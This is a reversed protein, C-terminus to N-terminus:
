LIEGKMCLLNGDIQIFQRGARSLKQQEGGTKRDVEQNQILQTYYGGQKLLEQHSGREVIEGQHMVLILDANRITSLRHAIIIQACSLRRINQEIIQETLVDLSSTAEDLLLLVPERVLARALALRQRQGGSLANGGESVFTEYQMPMKMIDDHLAAVKAAKIVKEMNMTPDSLTINERISGSFISAEQTVVGFQARVAQYNLSRLPIGDYLIEGKTPICLGLILSGLTSKGSGTRGVIAVKQGPRISLDISRLIMPAQADYQFSVKNLRISGTLQPPDVVKQWNQEPDADIVDAIRELHSQILQLQTGSSVLSSLPTLLAGALANLALMTGVQMSGAIVQMTGLWLLTLPACINLASLVITILASLYNRRVSINMQEFFLNSWQELARHEAGVSKLTKIGVLMETLYGQSKGDATLERRTLEGFYPKISLLLVSQLIGIILVVVTFSLSQSFLICLYILVFSGDLITSILQNSITDRIIMNSSVRTLLDGSSRQLFFSHPLSLLHEFFNLMMNTDIRAQVYVLISARLLSTIFQALVLLLMGLGFLWLANSMKAPILQDIAVATLLPVLLGLLQLLLSAGLIQLLATPTQKVYRLLYTQVNFAKETGERHFQAGPELLIIVGTFGLDFEEITMRRRGATPDVVDVFRPSWREVILFHNFEWHVIAPLAVNRFDNEQLSLARVRMGYARAAKVISLASLGDRGMGCRERVESISTKRGYYCLLMALCAAGCEVMSVQLLLPVRRQRLSQTSISFIHQLMQQSKQQWSTTYSISHSRKEKELPVSLAQLQLTEIRAIHERHAILEAVEPSSFQEVVQTERLSSPPKLATHWQKQRVSSVMERIRTDM